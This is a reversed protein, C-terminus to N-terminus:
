RREGYQSAERARRRAARRRAAERRKKEARLYLLFLVVCVILLVILVILVIWFWASSSPATGSGDNVPVGDILSSDNEGGILNTVPANANDSAIPVVESVSTGEKVSRTSILPAEAITKRNYSYTVSGIQDGEVIPAYM